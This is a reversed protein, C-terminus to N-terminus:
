CLYYYYYNGYASVFNGAIYKYVKNSYSGWLGAPGVTIHTLRTYGLRQWYSRILFYPNNYKSRAVVMGNGADVQYVDYLRPAEVCTWATFVFDNYHVLFM